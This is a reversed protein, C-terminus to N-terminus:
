LVALNNGRNGNITKGNIITVYVAKEEIYSCGWGREWRISGRRQSLYFRTNPRLVSVFMVTILVTDNFYNLSIYSAICQLYYWFGSLFRLCVKKIRLFLDQVIIFDNYLNKLAYIYEYVRSSRM